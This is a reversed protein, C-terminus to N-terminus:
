TNDTIWSAKLQNLTQTKFACLRDSSYVVFLYTILERVTAVISNCACGIQTGEIVLREKNDNLIYDYDKIGFADCIPKITNLVTERKCKRYENRDKIYPEIISYFDKM